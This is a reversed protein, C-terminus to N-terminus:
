VQKEPEDVLSRVFVEPDNWFFEAERRHCSFLIIQRQRALEKLYTLAAACRADDFNALADDLIIPAPDRGPLVLDCIALRVALYLQDGTGASLLGADRPIPDGAPEAALHFSRDLAVGTYRGGTLRSFIEAARRSLAPSFRNQLATNAATLAEMAMAISRYEEELAAKEAALAQRQAKAAAPDGLATLQGTLRDAISRAQTLSSRTEELRAAVAQRTATPASALAGFAPQGALQQALLDGHLQAERAANQTETLTKRVAYASRLANDAASLDFAAPAFRRVELLIRQENSTYTEGLADAAASLRDAEAQAADRTQCLELYTHLLAQIEGADRTGFRRLLATDRAKAAASRNLLLGAGLAAALIIVAAIVAAPIGAQQYLLYGTTAAAPAGLLLAPLTYHSVKIAPPRAAERQASEPSQGAFPSSELAAEARLLQKMAEDRDDRAKELSKQATHLNVIAGRLRGIADTEPIRQEQIRRAMRDAREEAEAQAQRAEELSRQRRSLDQQDHLALENALTHEQETLLRIDEQAQTLRHSLEGTEALQRDLEQLRAELAPIRGTKNHRRLHLQRKLATMAETYSIDEEGSSILAAIRRELEADQRIVLGSQRIFASREWVERSVGTLAEGCNQGTLGPIPEQTGAYFASFEAMPATPRRTERLITVDAEGRRCDLRGSMAAGSWPAYRNKEAISDARDRERSNVGYLMATLLASWTSKGAENPAHLINLGEQLELTDQHLRGFTGSIRHIKM